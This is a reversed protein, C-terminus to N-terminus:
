ANQKQNYTVHVEWVDPASSVKIPTLYIYNNVSVTYSGGFVIASAPITPATGANHRLVQTMGEIADTFDFTINGTEATPYGYKKPGNFSIVTGTSQVLGLKVNIPLDIAAM